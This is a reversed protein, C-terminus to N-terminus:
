KLVELSKAEQELRNIAYELLTVITKQKTPAQDAIKNFLAEDLWLAVQRDKKPSLYNANKGNLVIRKEGEPRDIERWQSESRGFVSVDQAAEAGSDTFIAIMSSPM